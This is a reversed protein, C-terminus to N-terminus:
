PRRTRGVRCVCLQFGYPRLRGGAPSVSITREANLDAPIAKVVSIGGNCFWAMANPATNSSAGTTKIPVFCCYPFRGFNPGRM